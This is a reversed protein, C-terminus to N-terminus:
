SSTLIKTTLLAIFAVLILIYSAPASATVTIASCNRRTGQSCIQSGVFYHGGQNSPPMEIMGNTKIHPLQHHSSTWTELSVHYTSLSILCHTGLSPCTTSPGNAVDETVVVGVSGPPVIVEETFEVRDPEHIPPSWFTPPPLPLAHLALSSLSFAVLVAQLWISAASGAVLRSSSALPLSPRTHPPLTRDRATALSQREVSVISSWTTKRESSLGVLNWTTKMESSQGLIIIDQVLDWTSEIHVVACFVAAFLPM